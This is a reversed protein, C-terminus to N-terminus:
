RGRRPLLLRGPVQPPYAATLEGRGTHHLEAPSRGVIPQAGGDQCLRATSTSDLNPTYPGIQEAPLRGLRALVQCAAPVSGKRLPVLAM